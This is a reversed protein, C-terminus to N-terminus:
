RSDLCDFRTVWLVKAHCNRAHQRGGFNTCVPCSETKPLMEVYKSQVSNPILASLSVNTEVNERYKTPSITMRGDNDRSIGM